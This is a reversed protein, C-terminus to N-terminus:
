FHITNQYDTSIGAAFLHSDNSLQLVRPVTFGDERFDIVTMGSHSMEFHVCYTPYPIDLLCSMFATGFGEHAFLAVREYQPSEPIYGGRERDHRYGLSLMLADVEGQIREIGAAYPALRPHTYWKDGLQRVEATAMLARFDDWRFLWRRRGEPNTYTLQASARDEHCWDLCEVELGLARATPAATMQARVSSSSFIKQPACERMRAVLAEAQRHGKETLSDPHYIPDGHRVFFLLM